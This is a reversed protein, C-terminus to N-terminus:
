YNVERLRGRGGSQVSGLLPLAEKRQRIGNPAVAVDVVTRRCSLAEISISPLPLSRAGGGDDRM